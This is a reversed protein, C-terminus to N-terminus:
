NISCAQHTLTSICGTGGLPGVTLAMEQATGTGKNGDNYFNILSVQM